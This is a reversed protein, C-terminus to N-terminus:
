SQKLRERHALQRGRHGRWLRQINVAANHEICERIYKRTLYGRFVKQITV